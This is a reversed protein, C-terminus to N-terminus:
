FLRHVGGVVMDSPWRKRPRTLTAPDDGCGSVVVFLRFLTVTIYMVNRLGRERASVKSGRTTGWEGEWVLRAFRGKAEGLQRETNAGRARCGPDADRCDLGRSRM